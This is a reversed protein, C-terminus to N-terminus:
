LEANEVCPSPAIGARVSAYAHMVGTLKTSPVTNPYLGTRAAFRSFETFPTIAPQNFRQGPHRYTGFPFQSDWLLQGEM